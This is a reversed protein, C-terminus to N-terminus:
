ETFFPDEKWLDLAPSTRVVDSQALTLVVLKPADYKKM